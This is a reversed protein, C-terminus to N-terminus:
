ERLIAHFANGHHRRSEGGIAELRQFLNRLFVGLDELVIAALLESEDWAQVVRIGAHIHDALQHQALQLAPNSLNSKVIRRAWIAPRSSALVRGTSARTKKFSVLWKNPM